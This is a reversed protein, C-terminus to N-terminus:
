GRCTFSVVRQRSESIVARERCAVGAGVGSLASMANVSPGRPKANWYSGARALNTTSSTRASLQATSHGTRTRTRTCQTRAAARRTRHEHDVLQMSDQELTSYEM